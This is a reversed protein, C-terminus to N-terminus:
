FTKSVEYSGIYISKRGISALASAPTQAKVNQSIKTYIAELEKHQHASNQKPTFQYWNKCAVIEGLEERSVVFSLIVSLSFYCLNPVPTPPCQVKGNRCEKTSKGQLGHGM